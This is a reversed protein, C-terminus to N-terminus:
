KDYRLESYAARIKIVLRFAATSSKQVTEDVSSEMVGNKCRVGFSSLCAASTFSRM